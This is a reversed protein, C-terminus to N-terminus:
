TLAKESPTGLAEDPTCLGIDQVGGLVGALAAIAARAMNIEHQDPTFGIGGEYDWMSLRFSRPDKAGFREKMIRAWMRRIARFKCIEELFDRHRGTILCSIRAAIDDIGLGRHLAREIYAIGHCLGFAIEQVANSGAERIHYPCIYM